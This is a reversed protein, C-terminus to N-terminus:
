RTSCQYPQTYICHICKYHRYIFAFSRGAATDLVPFARVTRVFFRLVGFRPQREGM